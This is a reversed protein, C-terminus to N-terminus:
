EERFLSGGIFERIISNRPIYEECDLDKFYGLFKLIRKSESYYQSSRDINRLLPEAYKKLVALEYVLASNFMVDAKEQFPFINNEEGRRVSEWLSLTKLADHGRYKSDRVIRRILRTDTTPIRNHSDINLQTLASVYIKFKNNQPIERTLKDNLGHIGEIIIPQNKDLKIVNGTYERKGKLFNYKPLEVEVGEMLKILDENLKDIDVAYLSEFDYNGEEDLPTEDRNVFYDDISIPIPRKGNVKLQTALRQAFTTKGSSSPGAILIVRINDDECIKDAIYAIKKEHLAESVMIIDKITKKEIKENLSAVYGVDLIEGWKESERFIKALKNQEEFKPIKFNSEKRPFQLIIGPHYYKLDFEKIYGTSPALYGYFTDYYDELKYVHINPENKYKLLKLKDEMDQKKFIKRAEEKSISERYIKIDREIIEKMKNKIKKVDRLGIKKNNHIETYLGKSLSHEITVTCNDFLEKCAKIYILCLTRVYIRLGDRDTIDLFEIDGKDKIEHELHKIENNFRAAVYQSSDIEKNIKNLINILKTGKNVKLEGFETINVKIEENKKGM